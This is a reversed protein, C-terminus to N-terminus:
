SKQTRDERELNNMTIFFHSMTGIFRVKVTPIGESCDVAIEAVLPLRESRDAVQRRDGKESSQICLSRGLVDEVFYRDTTGTANMKSAFLAAGKVVAEDRHFNKVLRKGFFLESIRKELTFVRSGGGVVYVVDVSAATRHSDQLAERVIAMIRDYNGENLIDFVDRCIDFRM